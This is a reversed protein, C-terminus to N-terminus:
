VSFVSWVTALAGVSCPRQQAGSVQLAVKGLKGESPFGHAVQFEEMETNVSRDDTQAVTFIRVKPRTKWLILRQCKM